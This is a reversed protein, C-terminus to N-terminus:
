NLMPELFQRCRPKNLLTKILAAYREKVPSKNILHYKNYILEFIAKVDVYIKESNKKPKFGIFDFRQHCMIFKHIYETMYDNKFHSILFDEPYEVYLILLLELGFKIRGIRSINKDYDKNINKSVAFTNITTNVENWLSVVNFGKILITEHVKSYTKLKDCPEGEKDDEEFDAPFPTCRYFKDNDYEVLAANKDYIDKSYYFMMLFEIAHDKLLNGKSDLVSINIRIRDIDEIVLEINEFYHGIDNKLKNFLPTLFTHFENAISVEGDELLLPRNMQVNVMVDIDATSTVHNNIDVINRYASGYIEFAAGGFIAYPTSDLVIPIGGPSPLRENFNHWNIDKIFQLLRNGHPYIANTLDIRNTSIVGTTNPRLRTQLLSTFPEGGNQLKIKGQKRANKSKRKRSNRTKCRKTKRLKRSLKM